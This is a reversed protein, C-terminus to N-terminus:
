IPVASSSNQLPDRRRRPSACCTESTGSQVAGEGILSAEFVPIDAPRDPPVGNQELPTVFDDIALKREDQGEVVPMPSYHLNMGGHGLRVEIKGADLVIRESLEDFRRSGSVLADTAFPGRHDHKRVNGALEVSIAFAILSRAQAM